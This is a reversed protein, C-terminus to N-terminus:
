KKNIIKPSKPKTTKLNISFYLSHIKLPHTKNKFLQIFANSLCRQKKFIQQLIYYIQKCQSIIFHKKLTKLPCKIKNGVRRQMLNRLDLGEHLIQFM